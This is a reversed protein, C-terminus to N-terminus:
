GSSDLANVQLSITQIKGRARERHARRSERDEANGEVQYSPGCARDSEHKLGM